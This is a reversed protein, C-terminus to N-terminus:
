SFGGLLTDCGTRGRYGSRRGFSHPDFVGRPRTSLSFLSFMKTAQDRKVIEFAKGENELVYRVRLYEESEVRTSSVYLDLM